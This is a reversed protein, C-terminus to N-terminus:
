QDLAPCLRSDGPYNPGYASTLCLVSDPRVEPSIIDREQPVSGMMRTNYATPNKDRKNSFTNRLMQFLTQCM